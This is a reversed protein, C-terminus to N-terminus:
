GTWTMAVILLTGGTALLLRASHRTEAADKDSGDVLLLRALYLGFLGAAIGIIGFPALLSPIM